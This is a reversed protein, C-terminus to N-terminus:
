KDERWFKFRSPYGGIMFGTTTTLEGEASLEYKIRKPYDHRPNDFIAKTSDFETLVFETAAGGGPQAIYVLGSDREVIRLFEFSRLNGKSVTRSVGLMSGGLPPSWREEITTTGSEGRTGVWPGALWALDNITAIAPTPMPIDEAHRYLGVWKYRAPSGGITIVLLGESTMKFERRLRSTLDVGSDREFDVTYSFVSDVWTGYYRTIKNEKVIETIAGDLAIRVDRNGSGHGQVLIVAGEDVALSFKASMPPGMYELARNETLDKVYIWEGVYEQLGDNYLVQPNLAALSISISLAIGAILVLKSIYKHM